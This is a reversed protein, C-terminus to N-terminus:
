AKTPLTLHTYSVPEYTGFLVQDMLYSKRQSFVTIGYFGINIMLPLGPILAMLQVTDLGRVGTVLSAVILAAVTVAAMCLLFYVMPYLMDWIKRGWSLEQGYRVRKKVDKKEQSAAEDEAALIGLDKVTEAIYEAGAAELEERGGYGYAAGMCAIGCKRAGEADNSRDGVMIVRDRKREYGTRCLAEEIVEAKDTRSGDLESGVVADFYGALKFHNLIEEVYVQPKSSAVGLLKGHEKLLGLLEPIGEYVENEYIGIGNYRERYQEVATDAEESTLGAFKMFQEHLPPGLFCNLEEPSYRPKGLYTLAYQVCRTIGPASDTLTGDLDFLILEIM